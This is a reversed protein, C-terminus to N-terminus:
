QGSESLLAKRLLEEIDRVNAIGLFGREQTSVNTGGKGSRQVMREEFVLDGSGDAYDRRVIKTLDAPQYSRVEVSGFVGAEWVLARRNTLAYCTRKAKRRMWYPSSLFGLGIVVFPVGFLPFAWSIVGVGQGIQLAGFSALTVWFIAFATWPIGFLVLGISSRAFRSPQPQGVWLLQEGPRLAAHVRADLDEPLRSDGFLFEDNMAGVGSMSAAPKGDIAASESCRIV